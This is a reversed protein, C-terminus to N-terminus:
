QPLNYFPAANFMTNTASELAAQLDSTSTQQASGDGLGINGQGLHLDAITWAWFSFDVGAGVVNAGYKGNQASTFMTTPFSTTGDGINRDGLLISQPQAGVADGGVFYSVFQTSTANPVAAVPPATPATIFGVNFNTAANPRVTDSPCLLISPNVVTNSMVSFVMPESYVFGASTGPNVKSYVYDEAGGPGSMNVNPVEMAYFSGQSNNNDGWLRFAVGLQRINSACNIRQAKRRAAALAPLLMAALIAIIAIVVLLEILTFAKKDKLIRKMRELNKLKRSSARIRVPVVCVTLMIGRPFKLMM